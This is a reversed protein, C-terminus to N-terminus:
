RTELGLILRDFKAKIIEMLEPGMFRYEDASGLVFIKTDRIKQRHEARIPSVHKDEIVLIYRVWSHRLRELTKQAKANGASRVSLGPEKRYIAERAPSRWQNKSSVFLVHKFKGPKMGGIFFGPTEM